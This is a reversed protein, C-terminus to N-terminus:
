LSWPRRPDIAGASPIWCRTPRRRRSRCAASPKWIVRTSGGRPNALRVIRSGGTPSPIIAYSGAANTRLYRQGAARFERFWQETTRGQYRPQRANRACLIMGALLLLVAAILIARRLSMAFRPSGVALTGRACRFLRREEMSPRMVSNKAAAKLAVRRRVPETQEAVYVVGCGGEGVKELLKYRGIQQGVVKDPVEAFDSKVTLCASEREAGPLTDAREHNMM